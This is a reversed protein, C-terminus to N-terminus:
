LVCRQGEHNYEIPLQPPNCMLGKTGRLLESSMVSLFSDLNGSSNIILVIVHYIAFSM